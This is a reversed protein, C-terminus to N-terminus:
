RSSFVSDFGFFISTSSLAVKKFYFLPMMFDMSKFSHSASIRSCHFSFSFVSFILCRRSMPFFVVCDKLQLLPHEAKDWLGAGFFLICQKLPSSPSPSHLLHSVLSIPDLNLSGRWSFAGTFKEEWPEEGNRDRLGGLATLVVVNERYWKVSLRIVGWGTKAIRILLDTFMSSETVLQKGIDWGLVSINDDIRMRHAWVICRCSHAGECRIMNIFLM